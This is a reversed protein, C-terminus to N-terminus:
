PIEPSLISVDLETETVISSSAPVLICALSRAEIPPAVVPKTLSEFVKFAEPDAFANVDASTVASM